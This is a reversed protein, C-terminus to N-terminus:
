PKVRGAHFEKTISRVCSEDIGDITVTVSSIKDTPAAPMKVTISPSDHGRLIVGNVVSWKYSVTQQSGGSVDATFVTEEDLIDPSNITITPCSIDSCTPECARVTVSETKTAGCIGCGDDAGSTITYMGPSVGSLDWKVSPGEGIIDGGSVTFDYRLLDGEPDVASANVDVIMSESALLGERMRKGPECQMVLERTSLTLAIVNAFQNINVPPLALPVSLAQSCSCGAHGALGARIVVAPPKWVGIISQPLTTVVFGPPLEAPSISTSATRTQERVPIRVGIQATGQGFVIEGSSVSWEYRRKLGRNDKTKIAFEVVQGAALSAKGPLIQFAPCRCPQPSTKARASQASGISVAVVLVLLFLMSAFIRTM